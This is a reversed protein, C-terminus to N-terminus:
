GDTSLVRGLERAHKIEKYHEKRGSRLSEWCAGHFVFEGVVKRRTYEEIVSKCEECIVWMESFLMM